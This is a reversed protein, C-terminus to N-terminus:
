LSVGSLTPLPPLTSDCWLAPSDAYLGVSDGYEPHGDLMGHFGYLSHWDLAYQKKIPLGLYSVAPDTQHKPCTPDIVFGERNSCWGHPMAFLQGRWHFVMAGECYTLEEYDIALCMAQDYCRGARDLRPYRDDFPAKKFVRGQSMLLRAMYQVRQLEFEPDTMLVISDSVRLPRLRELDMHGPHKPKSM